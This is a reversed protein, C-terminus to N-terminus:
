FVKLASQNALIENIQREIYPDKETINTISNLSNEIVQISNEISTRKTKFLELKKPDLKDGKSLEDLILTTYSDLRSQYDSLIKQERDQKNEFQKLPASRLAEVMNNVISLSSAQSAEVTVGLFKGLNSIKQVSSKFELDHLRSKPDVAIRELQNNQKFNQLGELAEDSQLIESLELAVRKDIKYDRILSFSLGLIELSDNSNNAAAKMQEALKEQLGINLSSVTLQTNQLLDLIPNAINTSALEAYAVAIGLSLKSDLLYRLFQREQQSDLDLEFGSDMANAKSVSGQKAFHLLIKTFLLDEHLKDDADVLYDFFRNQNALSLDAVSYKSKELFAYKDSGAEFTFLDLYANAFDASLKTDALYSFFQTEGNMGLGLGRSSELVTIKESDGNQIFNSLNTVYLIDLDTKNEKDVLYESLTKQNKKDYSSILYKNNELYILKESESGLNILDVYTSTLDASVKNDMIYNLLQKEQTESLSLVSTEELISLKSLLSFTEPQKQNIVANEDALYNLVKTQVTANLSSIAYKNNDIFDLKENGAQSNLLTLYTATFDLSVKNDLFYNFFKMEQEKTLDLDRARSLINIREDDQQTLLVRITDTFVTDNETLNDLDLLYNLVKEQTVADSSSILYKNESLYKLKEDDAGSSIIDLFSGILNVSVNRDSLYSLFQQEQEASFETKRNQELINLKTLDGRRALRLYTKAFSVDDDTFNASDTVYDFVKQQFDKGIESIKFKNEALFRLKDSDANSKVLNMYTKAFDVSVDKEVLAARWENRTEIDMEVLNGQILLDLKAKDGQKLLTNFVNAFSLNVGSRNISLSELLQDIQVKNTTDTMALYELFLGEKENGLSRKRVLDLIEIGKEDASKMFTILKSTFGIDNVTVEDSDKLYDIIKQQKAVDLSSIIYKNAELFNIKNEDAGHQILILHADAVTNSVAADNVYELFKDEQDVNLEIDRGKDLLKVGQDDGLELLHLLKEAFSLDSDTLKRSDQLFDFIKNQTVEDYKSILYKNTEIFNLKETDETFMKLYNQSFRVSVEGDSLYNLIQQEQNANLDLRRGQELIKLRDIEGEQTLNLVTEAFLIDEKTLNNEDLLSEFIKAQAEGNCAALLGKNKDLFDLKGQNEGSGLIDLYAEAINSDIWLYSIFQKEQDAALNLNKTKDLVALKNRDGAEIFYQVSSAKLLDNESSNTSDLLCTQLKKQDDKQMRSIEYKNTELYILKEIDGTSSAIDMFSEAVTASVLQNLILELFKNQDDETLNLERGTILVDVKDRKGAKILNILAKTFTTDDETLNDADLLSTFIMQQDLTNQASIVYKNNEIFEIKEFGVDSTAAILFEAALNASVDSDLLYDKLQAKSKDDLDMASAKHLTVLKEQNNQQELLKAVQTFYSDTALNIDSSPENVLEAFPELVVPDTFLFENVDLNFEEKIVFENVDLNFEEEIVSENVIPSLELILPALANGSIVSLNAGYLSNEFDELIYNNPYLVDTLSIGENSIDM